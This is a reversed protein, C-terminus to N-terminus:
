TGTREQDLAPYIKQLEDKLAQLKESIYSAIEGSTAEVVCDGKKLNNDLDFGIRGRHAIDKLQDQIQSISNHDESSLRIRVDEDRGMKELIAKIAHSVIEDQNQIHHDVVVSAMKYALEVLRTEYIEALQTKTQTIAELSSALGEILAALRSKEQALGKEVGEKLGVEFGEKQAREVAEGRILEIQQAVREEFRREEEAEVSLSNQVMESLLFRSHKPNTGDVNFSEKISKYTPRTEEGLVRINFEEIVAGPPLLKNSSAM